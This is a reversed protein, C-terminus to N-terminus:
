KKKGFLGRLTDGIAGAGSGGQKGRGGLTSDLLSGGINKVDPIFKPDAASGRVFFPINLAGGGALTTLGAGLAGGPKLQAKMQFDLMQRNDITGNGTLQGLESMILMLTNVRIGEPAMRFTSALKEIDTERRSKLGALTAVMAGMKGSLDFGVLRTRSIDVDGTVAMKDLPGESALRATLFGGQLSAGKPLAVGFAPLLPTLDQVPMNKGTLRLNVVTRDGQLAYGGTLFASAKGCALKASEIYEERRVLDYVAKYDLSIRRGAPAGSRIVQLREVSARGSSEVRRGDSALRGSYDVVGGLGSDAPVFGSAILDFEKVAIEADVPTLTMDRDNLPGAKGALKLSGKGPLSGSLTFPFSSTFSLNEATVNVDDFVSPKRSGGKHVVSVQGREIKLNKILVQRGAFRGTEDGEASEKPGGGLDSFNWRGAQDQILAISPKILVVGTIEISKSFILPKLEVGVKLSGAHIFPSRSFTRNDAIAIDEVVLSRSLLSLKLNGMTLSRGLAKSLMMQLQPRFQNADLFLYLGGATALVVAAAIGLVRPLISKKKADTSM